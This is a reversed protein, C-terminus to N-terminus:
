SQGPAANPDGILPTHDPHRAVSDRREHLANADSGGLSQAADVERRRHAVLPRRPLLGSGNRM